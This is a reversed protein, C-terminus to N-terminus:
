PTLYEIARQNWEINEFFGLARNCPVCLLGRVRGTNHDHDVSLRNKRPKDQQCLACVGNQRKLMEDYEAETIGYVNKLTDRRGFKQGYERNYKM